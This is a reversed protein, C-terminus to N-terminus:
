ALAEIAYLYAVLARPIERLLITETEEAGPSMHLLIGLPLRFLTVAYARRDQEGAHPLRLALVKLYIRELTESIEPSELSPDSETLRLLLLVEPSAIFYQMYPQVLRQIAEVSTFAQWDQDPVQDLRETIARLAMLHREILARLVREKDPFFHYLSGISTQAERALGHMTLRAEGEHVLLRACADLIAMVRERGRAQQPLRANKELSKPAKASSDPKESMSESLAM